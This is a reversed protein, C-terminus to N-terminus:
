GQKEWRGDDSQQWYTLNAGKNKLTKWFSRSQSVAVKDHGDFMLVIREYGNIDVPEAGFIFFRVNANNPNENGCTLYIPQDSMDGDLDCAHPLFSDDRYTWLHADISSIDGAEGLQIVASWDRELTKELLQPLVAELSQRQLHYFLVDVSM